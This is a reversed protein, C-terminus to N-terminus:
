TRRAPRRGRRGRIEGLGVLERRDLGSSGLGGIRHDGIRHSGHGVAEVAAAAKWTM